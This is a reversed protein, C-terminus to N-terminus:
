TYSGFVLVLPKGEALVDLRVAGDDLRALELQPVPDGVRIRDARQYRLITSVVVERQEPALSEAYERDRADLRTLDLDTVGVTQRRPTPLPGPM